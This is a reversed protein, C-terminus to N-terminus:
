DKQSSGSIKLRDLQSQMLSIRKELPIRLAPVKCDTDYYELFDIIHFLLPSNSRAKFLRYLLSNLLSLKFWVTSINGTRIPPVISTSTDLSKKRQWKRNM